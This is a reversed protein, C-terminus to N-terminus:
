RTEGSSDPLYDPATRAPESELEDLFRDVTRQVRQPEAMSEGIIREALEIALTGIEGKLAAFAQAREVEVQAIAQDVLRQYEQRGKAKAEAIIQEGQRRAAERTELAAQQSAVLKEEFERRARDAEAQVLQARNISGEIQESRDRYLQEFKPVVLKQVGFAVIIALVVGVVVESFHEPALPGLDINMVIM